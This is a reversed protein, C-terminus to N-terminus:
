FQYKDLVVNHLKSVLWFCFLSLNESVLMHKHCLKISEPVPNGYYTILQAIEARGSKLYLLLSLNEIQKGKNWWSFILKRINQNEM